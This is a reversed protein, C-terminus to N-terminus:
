NLRWINGCSRCIGQVHTKREMVYVIINFVIFIVISAIIFGIFTGDTWGDIYRYATELSADQRRVWYYNMIIFVLPIFSFIDRAIRLGFAKHYETIFELATSGCRPCILPQYFPRPQQQQQQM